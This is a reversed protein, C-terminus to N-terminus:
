SPQEAVDLSDRLQKLRIPSIVFQRLGDPLSPLLVSSNPLQPRGLIMQRLLSNLERLAFEIPEHVSPDSNFQVSYGLRAEEATLGAFLLFEEPVMADLVGTLHRLAALRADRRLSAYNAAAEHAALEHSNRVAALDDVLMQFNEADDLHGNRAAKLKVADRTSLGFSQFFGRIKANVADAEQRAADRAGAFKTIEEDHRKLNAMANEFAQQAALMAEIPLSIVAALEGCVRNNASQGPLENM